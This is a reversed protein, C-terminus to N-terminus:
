KLDSKKRDLNGFRDFVIDIEQVRTKGGCAIGFRFTITKGARAEPQLGTASEATLFFVGKTSAACRGECRVTAPKIAAGPKYLTKGKNTGKTPVFSVPKFAGMAAKLGRAPLVKFTGACDGDGKSCSMAWRALGGIRALKPGRPRLEGATSYFDKKTMTIKIAICDCPVPQPQVWPIGFPGDDTRGDSSARATFPGDARALGQPSHVTAQFSQNPAVGPSFPCYGQTVGEFSIIRCPQGAVSIQDLNKGAPAKVRMFLMTDPGTNQIALVATNADAGPAASGSLNVTAVRSHQSAAPSVALVLLSLLV